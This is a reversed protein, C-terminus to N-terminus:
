PRFRDGVKMIGADIFDEVGAFARSDRDMFSLRNSSRMRNLLADISSYTASNGAYARTKLAMATRRELDPTFKFHASALVLDRPAHGIGPHNGNLYM